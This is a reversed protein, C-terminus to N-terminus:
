AIFYYSEQYAVLGCEDRLNQSTVFSFDFCIQWYWVISALSEDWQVSGGHKDPLHHPVYINHLVRPHHELHCKCWGHPRSSVIELHWEGM